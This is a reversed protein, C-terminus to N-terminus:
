RLIIFLQFAFNEYYKQFVYPIMSKRSAHGNKLFHFASLQEHRSHLTYKFFITKKYLFLIPIIESSVKEVMNQNIIQPEWEKNWDVKKQNKIKIKVLNQTAFLFYINM